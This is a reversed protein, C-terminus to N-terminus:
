VYKPGLNLVGKYFGKLKQYLHSIGNMKDEESVKLLPPIKNCQENTHHKFRSHSRVIQYTVEENGNHITIMGEFRKANIGVERLFLEGFNVDGIGEDRYANMDELVTFDLLQALIEICYVITYYSLSYIRIVWSKADGSFPRGAPTSYKPLVVISMVFGQWDGDEVDGRPEKGRRMSDVIKALDLRACREEAIQLRLERNEMQTDSIAHWLAARQADTQGAWSELALVPRAESRTFLERIDRDYREFLAPSLKGLRVTHDHILGGQMKVRAGLETLFGEAEAMAPSPSVPLLGSSWEPSPPTQVLPARPPYAPVDIYERGDKPDIWTTLTPQRLTSVRELREPEPVSGSGQGVATEMVLTTRQQGEPVVKDGGLNLSKVRMIPGEDGATLGEDGVAPGEDEATPGEDEADESKSDFDSSEELKEDEEEEDEEEEDELFASDSMAAVEAISASLSHSMMSLVCMAMRATTDSDESEEAHRTPPTSGPLLTPSAVIHPSEPTETEVPDKFPESETDTEVLYALQLVINPCSWLLCPSDKGIVRNDCMGEFRKANIEVLVAFDIMCSFKLNYACDIRIKNDYDCDNPYGFIKSVMRADNRAKFEEVVDGEEITPILDDVQDRRLELPVNLNNLEIYY